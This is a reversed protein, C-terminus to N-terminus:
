IIESNDRLNIGNYDNSKHEIQSYKLYVNYEWITTIIILNDSIAVSKVTLLKSNIKLYKFIDPDMILLEIKNFKPGPTDGQIILAIMGDILVENYVRDDGFRAMLFTYLQNFFVNLRPDDFVKEVSFLNYNTM